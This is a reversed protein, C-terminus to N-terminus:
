NHIIHIVEYDKYVSMAKDMKRRDSTLQKEWSTNKGADPSAPIIKRLATCQYGWVECKKHKASVGFVVALMICFERMSPQLASKLSLTTSLCGGNKLSRSNQSTTM